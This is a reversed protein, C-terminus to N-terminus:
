TLIKLPFKNHLVGNNLRALCAEAQLMGIGRDIKSMDQLMGKWGCTDLVAIRGVTEKSGTIDSLLKGDWHLLIPKTHQFEQDLVAQKKCNRYRFAFVHSKAEPYRRPVLTILM